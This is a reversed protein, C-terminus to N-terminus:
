NSKSKRYNEVEWNAIFAILWDPMFVGGGFNEAYVAIKVTDCFLKLATEASKETDGCAFVGVGQVGTVKPAFGYTEAFAAAAESPTEGARLFMAKHGYYVMHDPTFASYVKHFAAEDRTFNLLEKNRAFRAYKAGLVGKLTEALANADTNERETASFDPQRKINAGIKAFVTDMLAAIEEPTDGAVFIGHNALFIMNAATGGAQFARIRERVEAALVYGPMTPAIWIVDSGFMERAAREGNAACTLGNVLAPHTHVVYKQAFLDHLSTEVSPRKGDEERADMLDRLVLAERAAADDPYTGRWMAALKSRNM